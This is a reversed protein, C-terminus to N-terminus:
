ANHPLRHTGPEDKAQWSFLVAALFLVFGLQYIRGFADLLAQLPVTELATVTSKGAHSIMASFITEFVCVGATMGIRGVMRFSASVLGQRNEPAMAMIVNNNSPLFTAFVVALLAFYCLVPALGPTRLIFSFFLSLLAGLSLATTCLVRPHIRKSLQGALPGVWVFVLSYALLALGAKQPTLRKVVILYFPIIFNNGALFAYALFNAINGSSFARSRFLSYDLLSVPASRERLIFAALMILTLALSGLMRGSHWGYQNFRNLCWIL